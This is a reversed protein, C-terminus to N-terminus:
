RPQHLAMTHLAVPLSAEGLSSPHQQHCLAQMGHSKSCSHSQLGAQWVQPPSHQVPLSARIGAM